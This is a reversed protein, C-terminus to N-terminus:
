KKGEIFLSSHNLEGGKNESIIERKQLFSNCIVILCGATDIM